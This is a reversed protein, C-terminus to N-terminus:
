FTHILLGSLLKPEFWTSKPPMIGGADAIAIVEGVKVPQMAIAAIYAGGDVKAVLDALPRAGGLYQLRPDGRPDTIGLLRAFVEQQLISVDLSEIVGRGPLRPTSIEYWTGALYLHFVHNASQDGAPMVQFSSGDVPGYTRVSFSRKLEGLFEAPTRGGLDALLRSYGHIRVHASGFVVAMFRGAEVPCTGASKMRDAVNVSSKARHHGDAIYLDPIKSFSEEIWKLAAEDRITFVEHVSGHGNKVECDPTSGPPFLGDLYAYLDEHDPYLLVVQGNHSRVEGIHRTRDEEKDYRTLEHRRIHNERYDAADVCCCLGCFREKGSTVRYLYMLPKEERYLVGNDQMAQFEAHARAYVRNDQPPIDPLLADSRSIRLFSLPNSAIAEQAERTTVVDYPVAAVAGALDRKPRVAAFRHVQVM